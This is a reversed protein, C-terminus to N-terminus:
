RIERGAGLAFFLSLGRRAGLHPAAGATLWRRLVGVVEALKPHVSFVWFMLCPCFGM